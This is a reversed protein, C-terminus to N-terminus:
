LPRYWITLQVKLPRAPAPPPPVAGGTITAWSSFTIVAEALGPLDWGSWNVAPGAFSIEQEPGINTHLHDRLGQMFHNVPDGRDATHLGEFDINVGDLHYDRIVSAVEEYFTQSATSSNLLAHIDDNNFEVVCMIVKVGNAHANNMTATWDGPWGPPFASIKGDTSVSFDFLAIHSLLEYRFYPPATTREWYPLYGFVASSLGSTKAKRPQLPIIGAPLSKPFTRTGAERRHAEWEIQHIGKM